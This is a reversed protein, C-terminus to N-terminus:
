VLKFFVNELEFVFLKTGNFLQSISSESFPVKPNDFNLLLRAAETLTPM